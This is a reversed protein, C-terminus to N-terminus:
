RRLFRLLDATAVIAQRCDDATLVSVGTGRPSLSGDESIPPALVKALEGILRDSVPLEVVSALLTTYTADFAARVTLVQSWFERIGIARIDATNRLSAALRVIWGSLDMPDGINPPERLTLPIEMALDEAEPMMAPVAPVLDAATPAGTVETEVRDVESM